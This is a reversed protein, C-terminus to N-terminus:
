QRNAEPPFEAYKIIGIMLERFRFNSRRFEDLAQQIIPQDAATEARGTAYRFLQKVICEQCQPTSALIVGLERPSAFEANPLGAVWGKPDIELEATKPKDDSDEERSFHIRFKEHRAGIADFKEFGYGIPDILKHCNACSENSLHLALRERNTRPKDETLPPLNMNTGPPPLPVKQCLFRERIFLGRATPSTEAPKSTLALFTGQGLIGARESGTPFTVRAFETAPAPLDYLAALDASVFSYNATFLEMFNGDDWVLGAVFRRTEETMALALERNFQPFSRREKLQTMLQDFRLWQSVFEDVADRAKPSALMRRAARELGEPTDLEGSAAGRLLADDPMSDWLFYSLRSARAYPAPAAGPDLFLFNPSQLMTEVVIRAGELFDTQKEFLASYRQLEGGTLPRRFAKLGFERIFQARCEPDTPSSPRCPILGRADGGRFAGGALKEAAAGYAETLLPSISQARSQNKFGDVFDEPPFQRAPHGIDGLLDRVTNDYQSHTLRRLVPSEKPAPQSGASLSPVTALRRVWARLVAEDSSGPAIRKGGVHPVRNTPKKLLLSNEPDAFDVFRRLSDGFDEIRAEPSGPEPFQLRTVSAVGNPNHCAECGAKELIPYVDERFRIGQSAADALLATAVASSLFLLRRKRM